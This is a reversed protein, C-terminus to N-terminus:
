YRGIFRDDYTLAERDHRFQIRKQKEQLANQQEWEQRKVRSRYITSKNEKFAFSIIMPVRLSNVVIASNIVVYFSSITSVNAAVFMANCIISLTTSIVTSNLPIALNRNTAASTRSACNQLLKLSQQSKVNRSQIIFFTRADLTATAITTLVTPLGFLVM